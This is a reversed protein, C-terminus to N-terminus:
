RPASRGAEGAAFKINERLRNTDFPGPLLNNITVNDPALQRARVGVARARLFKRLAWFLSANPQLPLM